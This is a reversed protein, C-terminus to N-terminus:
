ALCYISYCEPNWIRRAEMDPVFKVPLNAREAVHKLTLHKKQRIHGVMVSPAANLLLPREPDIPIQELRESLKERSLGREERASRLAQGLLKYFEERTMLAM